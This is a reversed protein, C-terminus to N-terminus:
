GVKLGTLRNLLRRLIFFPLFLVLHVALSVGFVLAISQLARNFWPAVANLLWNGAGFIVLVVALSTLLLILPMWKRRDSTSPLMTSSIAFLLYFWLWFDSMQPLHRIESLAESYQAASISTIIEQVKLVGLSIAATAIGGTILPAMGILSDRIFDAEATEVYGLRITGDPLVNPFLSFRGTQVRLLKAMLFHSTEHLLIGPLFLLSFLGVTLGPKRTLLLLVVQIERHVRRQVFLFPLLFGLLWLLGNVREFIM